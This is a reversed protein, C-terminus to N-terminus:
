RSPSSPCCTGRRSTASSRAGPPGAASSRVWTTPAGASTTPASTTTSTFSVAEIHRTVREVVSSPAPSRTIVRTRSDTVPLGAARQLQDYLAVDDLSWRHKFLNYPHRNSMRFDLCWVDYGRDLLHSVLNEHEPMIFMDTSTTLGHVVMVAEGLRAIM